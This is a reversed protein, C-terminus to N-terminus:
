KEARPLVREFCVIGNGADDIVYVTERWTEEGATIQTQTEPTRELLHYKGEAIRCDEDTELIIVASGEEGCIRLQEVGYLAFLIEKIVCAHYPEKILVPLAEGMSHLTKM